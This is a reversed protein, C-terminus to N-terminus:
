ASLLDCGSIQLFKALGATSRVARRCLDNETDVDDDHFGRDLVERERHRGVLQERPERTVM